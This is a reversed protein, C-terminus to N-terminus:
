DIFLIVCLFMLFHRFSLARYLEWNFSIGRSQSAHSPLMSRSAGCEPGVNGWRTPGMNRGRHTPGVNGGSDKPGETHLGWMVRSHTRTPRVKHLGWQTYAGSKGWPIYAGCNEWSTHAGCKGWSTHCRQPQVCSLGGSNAINDFPKVSQSQSPIHSYPGQGLYHLGVEAPGMQHAISTYIKYSPLMYNAKWSSSGCVEGRGWAWLSGVM